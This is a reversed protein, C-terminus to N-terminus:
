KRSSKNPCAKELIKSGLLGIYPSDIKQSYYYDYYFYYYYSIIINSLNLSIFTTTKELHRGSRGEKRGREEKSKTKIEKRDQVVFIIIDKIKAKLYYTYIYIYFLTLQDAWGTYPNNTTDDGM